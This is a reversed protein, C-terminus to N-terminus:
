DDRELADRLRERAEEEVEERVAGAAADRLRDQAATRAAAIIPTLVAETAEGYTAGGSARGIGNVVVDGLELTEPDSLVESTLTVSANTLRFRDIIIRAEEQGEVPPADPTQTMYRQIDTLNTADGRQEVNLHASDVLVEDVVPVDSSLSTLALALRVDDLRLAYDTGFGEPNGITLGRLNGRGETLAIDVGSLSVDTGTAASGYTKVADGVMRDIQTVVLAVAAVVVVLVAAAAGFVIKKSM